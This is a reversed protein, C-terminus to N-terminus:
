TILLIILILAATAGVLAWLVAAEGQESRYNANHWSRAADEDSVSTWESYTNLAAGFALISVLVLLM